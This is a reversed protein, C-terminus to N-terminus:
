EMDLSSAALTMGGTVNKDKGDAFSEVQSALCGPIRIRTSMRDSKFNVLPHTFRLECRPERFNM